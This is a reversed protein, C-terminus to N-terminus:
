PSAPAKSGMRTRALLWLGLAVLPISLIQGMNIPLTAEFAEQDAKIFEIVFRFGFVLVLFWGFLLGHPTETKRKLYLGRLLLYTLFYFSAEYLQSPHRPVIPLHSTDAVFLFGWPLDTPAGVIESNMLNGLRIFTGGLAVVVVLRDIVWLFPQDPRKRSYLYVALPIAIAAGHSALGGKWIMFLVLPNELLLQPEYFVLHGLRAGLLTGGIVYYLLTDLDQEPRKEWRYVKQFFRYGFVFGLAFLLGYWRPGWGWKEIYFLFPSVDWTIAGLEM